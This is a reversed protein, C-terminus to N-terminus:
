SLHFNRVLTRGVDVNLAEIRETRFGTAEATVTYTGNPIAAVYYRGDADARVSVDFGISKERVRIVAGPLPAGSPDIVRGQLAAMTQAIAPMSACLLVAM